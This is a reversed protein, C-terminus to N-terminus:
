HGTARSSITGGDHQLIEAAANFFHILLSLPYGRHLPVSLEDTLSDLNMSLFLDVANTSTAKVSSM